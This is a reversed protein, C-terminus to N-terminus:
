FLEAIKACAKDFEDNQWNGTSDWYLADKDSPEGNTLMVCPKKTKWHEMVIAHTVPTNELEIGLDSVNAVEFGEDEMLNYLEQEGKNM